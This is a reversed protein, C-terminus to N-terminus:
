RPWCKWGTRVWNPWAQESQRNGRHALDARQGNGAALRAAGSQPLRAGARHCRCRAAPSSRLSRTRIRCSDWRRRRRPGRWRPRIAGADQDAPRGGTQGSVAGAGAGGRQPDGEDADKLAFLLPGVSDADKAAALEAITALRTKLNSSRLQQYKWWLMM